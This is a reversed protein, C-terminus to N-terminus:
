GIAASSVASKAESWRQIMSVEAVFRVAVPPAWRAATEDLCERLRRAVLEGHEAPAHIL